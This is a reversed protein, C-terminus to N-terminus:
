EGQIEQAPFLPSLLTDWAIPSSQAVWDPATVQQMHKEVRLRIIDDGIHWKTHCIRCLTVMTDPDDELHAGWGKLHHADLGEVRGCGVCRGDRAKVQEVVRKNRRKKM